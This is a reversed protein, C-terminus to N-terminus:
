GPRAMSMSSDKTVWAKGEVNFQGKDGLGHWGTKTHTFRFRIIIGGLDVKVEMHAITAIHCNLSKM